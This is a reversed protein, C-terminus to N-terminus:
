ARRVSEIVEDLTPWRGSEDMFLSTTRMVVPLNQQFIPQDVEIIDPM